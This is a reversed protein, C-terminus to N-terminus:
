YSYTIFIRKIFATQIRANISAEAHLLSLVECSFSFFHHYRFLFIDSVNQSEIRFWHCHNTCLYFSLHISEYNSMRADNTVVTYQDAHAFAVIGILTNALGLFQGDVKYATLHEWLGVIHSTYTTGRYIFRSYKFIM